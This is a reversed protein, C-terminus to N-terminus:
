SVVKLSSDNVSAPLYNVIINTKSKEDPSHRLKADM